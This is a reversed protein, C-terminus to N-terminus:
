AYLTGSSRQLSGSSIKSVHDQVDMQLGMPLVHQRDNGASCARPAVSYKVATNVNRPESDAGNYFQAQDVHIDQLFAHDEVRCHAVHGGPIAGKSEKPSFEDQVEFLPAESFAVFSTLESGTYIRLLIVWSTLVAESERFINSKVSSLEHGSELLKVFGYASTLNSCHRPGSTPKYCRVNRVVELPREAISGM